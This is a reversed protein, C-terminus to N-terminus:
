RKRADVGLGVLTAVVKAWTAHASGDATRNLQDVLLYLAAAPLLWNRLLAVPKVYASGRRVLLTNLENLALLAIPLGVVVFLAPWFWPASTLANM